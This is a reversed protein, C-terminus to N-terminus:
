PRGRRNFVPFVLLGRGMAGVTATAEGSQPFLTVTPVPVPAVPRATPTPEWTASAPPTDRPRMTPTPTVTCRSQLPACEPPTEWPEIPVGTCEGCPPWQVARGQTPTPTSQARTPRARTEAPTPSPTRSAARTPPRVAGTAPPIPTLRDDWRYPPGILAAPEGGARHVCARMALALLALAALALAAHRTMTLGGAVPWSRGRRRLIRM